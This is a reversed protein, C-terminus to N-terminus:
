SHKTFVLVDIANDQPVISTTEVRLTKGRTQMEVLMPGNYWFSAKAKEGSVSCEKGDTTCKLETKNKGENAVLHISNGAEEIAWTADALKLNHLECKTADLQWTGSFDPKGQGNAFGAVLACTICSIGLFRM